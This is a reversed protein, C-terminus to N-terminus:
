VSDSEKLQFWARDIITVPMFNVFVEHKQIRVQHLTYSKDEAEFSSDFRPHWQLLHGQPSVATVMSQLGKADRGEYVHVQVIHAELTELYAGPAGLPEVTASALEYLAARKVAREGAQWWRVIRIVGPLDDMTVFDGFPEYDPLRLAETRIADLKRWDMQSIRYALDAGEPEYRTELYSRALTATPKTRKRRAIVAPTYDGQFEILALLTSIVEDLPYPGTNIM